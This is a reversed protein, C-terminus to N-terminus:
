IRQIPLADSDVQEEDDERPKEGVLNILLDEKKAREGMEKLTFTGELIDQALSGRHLVPLASSKWIPVADLRDLQISSLRMTFLCFIAGCILIVAHFAIWGWSASYILTQVHITGTVTRNPLPEDITELPHNNIRMENTISIALTGVTEEFSGSSRTNKWLRSLLTPTIALDDTDIPEDGGFTAFGNLYGWPGSINRAIDFTENGKAGDREFWISQIYESIAMITERRVSYTPGGKDATNEFKPLNRSVCSTYKDYIMDTPLEGNPLYAKPIDAKLDEVSGFNGGDAPTWSEPTLSFETAETIHEQMLNNEFRAEIRKVCYYLGCERAKLPTDPWRTASKSTANGMKEGDIEIISASWILAEVDQMKVTKGPLGTGLATMWYGGQGGPTEGSVLDTSDLNSMLHGNPLGWATQSHDEAGFLVKTDDDRTLTDTIDNCRHCVGITEFVPWTCNGVPCTLTPERKIYSMSRSLGLNIAMEMDPLLNASCRTHTSNSESDDVLVGGFTYFETRAAYAEKGYYENISSDSSQIRLLQQSFPDLIMALITVAVGLQLVV